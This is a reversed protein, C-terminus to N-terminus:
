TGIFYILILDLQLSEHRVSVKQLYNIKSEQILKKLAALEQKSVSSKKELISVQEALTAMTTKTEELKEEM